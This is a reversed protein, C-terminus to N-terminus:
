HTHSGELGTLRCQLDRDTQQQPVMDHRLLVAFSADDNNAVCVLRLARAASMLLTSVHTYSIRQVGKDLLRRNAMAMSETILLQVTDNACVSPGLLSHSSYLKLAEAFKDTQLTSRCPASQVLQALAGSM